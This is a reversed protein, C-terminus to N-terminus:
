ETFSTRSKIPARSDLSRGQSLLSGNEQFVPNGADLASCVRSSNVGYTDSRAEASVRMNKEVEQDQTPSYPVIHSLKM